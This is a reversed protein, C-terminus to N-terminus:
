IQERKERGSDAFATWERHGREHIKGEIVVLVPIVGAGCLSGSPVPVEERADVDPRNEALHDRYLDLLHPV